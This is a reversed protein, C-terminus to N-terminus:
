GRPTQEVHSGDRAYFYARYAPADGTQRSGLFVLCNSSGRIMQQAPRSRKSVWGHQWSVHAQGSLPQGHSCLLTWSVRVPQLATIFIYSPDNQACALLAKAIATKAGPRYCGPKIPDSKAVASPGVGLVFVAALTIAVYLWRIRANISV